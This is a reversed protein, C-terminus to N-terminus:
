LFLQNCGGGFRGDTVGLNGGCDGESLKDFAAKARLLGHGFLTNCKNGGLDEATHLLVNRIQYNKCDPFYMWLLGAVASVHPAAMSTGRKQAYNDGPLTSWIADAPASIEVMDNFNAYTSRNKNNDVGTVSLLSAFSGPYVYSSDGNNGAAAVFLIDNDEYYAEFFDELIESYFTGGLSLNVVKAGDAICNDVAKMVGAYSGFGDGPLANSIVLEFKGGVDDPIVGVVGFGNGGVAAVTGSVHTGHGDNDVYWKDELVM